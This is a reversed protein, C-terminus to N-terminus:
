LGIHHLFRGMRSFRPPLSIHYTVKGATVEKAGWIYGATVLHDADQRSIEGHGDWIYCVLATPPMVPTVALQNPFTAPELLVQPLKSVKGFEVVYVSLPLKAEHIWSSLHRIRTAKGLAVVVMVDPSATLPFSNQYAELKKRWQTENEKGTDAELWYRLNTQKLTFLADALINHHSREQTWEALGPLLALYVATVLSRHLQRAGRHFQTPDWLADHYWIWTGERLAEDLAKPDAELLQQKTMMGTTRVVERWDM